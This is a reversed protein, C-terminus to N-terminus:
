KPVVYNLPNVPTGNERVEFHLHPGTSYGTSGVKAIVQGKAVKDGVSVLLQSTHGYLTTRNNGHNIIIANGYGGLTGAIIVTGGDAALINSKNAAGIDLGTHYERTKSIPNTRYGFPSTIIRYGPTPWMLIGTGQGGVKQTLERITKELAKSQAAMEDLARQTQDRSRNVEQLKQERAQVQQQYYGQRETQQAKLGVLETQQSELDSKYQAINARELKITAVVESDYNLIERMVQLRNVFDSFTHSGLLVAVYSLPGQEYLTRVRTGLQGQRTSLRQEAEQLKASTVDIQSQVATLRNQTASLDNQAQQLSGELRGLEGLVSNRQSQISKLNAQLNTMAKQMDQLEKQAKLLDDKADAAARPPVALVLALSVCLLVLLLRRKV